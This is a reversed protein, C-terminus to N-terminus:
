GRSKNAQSPITITVKWIGNDVEEVRSKLRRRKMEEVITTVACSHDTLLVISDGPQLKKIKSQVKSNPIPCMDGLANIFYEAM